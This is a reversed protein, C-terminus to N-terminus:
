GRNLAASARVHPGLWFAGIQDDDVVARFRADRQAEGGAAGGLGVAPDFHQPDDLRLVEDLEAADLRRDLFLLAQADFAHDAGRDALDEVLRSDLRVIM